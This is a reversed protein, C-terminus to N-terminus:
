HVGCNVFRWFLYIVLQGSCICLNDNKITLIIISRLRFIFNQAVATM